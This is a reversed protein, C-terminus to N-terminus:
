EESGGESMIEIGVYMNEKILRKLYKKVKHSDMKEIRDLVKDCEGQNYRAQALKEVERGVIPDNYWDYPHVTVHKELHLRVEEACSLIV